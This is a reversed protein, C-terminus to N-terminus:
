RYYKPVDLKKKCQCIELIFRELLRGGQKTHSVEPHFQLGYFDRKEDFMGIIECSESSALLSFQPPLTAVHDGHSMWVDLTGERDEIENLLISPNKIQVEAYGFERRSGKQVRGGLEVAMFQMGYCIGLLPCGLDFISNSARMSNKDLVSDPGGSLIIGFPAFERIKDESLDYPHIECYVGIERVRRAILQTYQSGFDLILIRQKHIDNLM